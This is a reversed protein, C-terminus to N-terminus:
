QDEDYGLLIRQGLDAFSCDAGTRSMDIAFLKGPPKREDTCGSLLSYQPVIRVGSVIPDKAADLLSFTYTDLRTNYRLNIFYVTGELVVRINQNPNAAIPIIVQAM